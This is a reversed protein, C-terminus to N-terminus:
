LSELFLWAERTWRADALANHEAGTQKPLKPDGLSLALQKVDLTLMPMGPPLDVMPGWLWCLAVHDYAGYYSWLEVPDAKSPQLFWLLSEAIMKRTGRLVDPHNLHPLVHERVWPNARSLDAEYNELYCERGSESVVGISLLELMGPSEMFETDYFFRRM